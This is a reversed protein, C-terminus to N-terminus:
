PGIDSWNRRSSIMSINSASVGYRAAVSRQTEGAALAARIGVVDDASLKVRRRNRKNEASTIWRCNGPEYNGNNDRRDIEHSTTPSEGMDSLFAAFDRRWRECVSIGRGGYDAWHKNKENECRAIMGRWVVYLRSKRGRKAYGHKTNRALRLERNLCGCSKILGRVMASAPAHTENGCDCQALWM